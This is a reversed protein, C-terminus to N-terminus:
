GRKKHTSKIYRAIDNAITKGYEQLAQIDPPIHVQRNPNSPPKTGESGRKAM